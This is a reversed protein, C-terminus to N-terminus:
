LEILDVNAGPLNRAIEAVHRHHTFLIAQRTHGFEALLGLARATRADDFSALLDDGIFPLPEGSRLELLALRLALFLQDRAGESMGAVPVRSGNGRQGVLMPADSEDYDASLREFAGNTAIAFLASARTLLPDQVAARHREIAYTALRAAAVRALWRSAVGVLQAGAEAKDHAAGAADHGAALADRAKAAEHRRTAADEIDNLLRTRDIQLSEIKSALADYDLGEQEAQLAEEDLGDASEALDRQAQVLARRTDERQQLRDFTPALPATSDLGLAARAQSLL